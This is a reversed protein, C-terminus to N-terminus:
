IYEQVIPVVQGLQEVLHNRSQLKKLELRSKDAELIRYIYIYINYAIYIIYIRSGAGSIARLKGPRNGMCLTHRLQGLNRKMSVERLSPRGRGARM